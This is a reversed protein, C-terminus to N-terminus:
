KSGLFLNCDLNWSSSVNGQFSIGDLLQLVDQTQENVPGAFLSFRGGICGWFFQDPGRWCLSRVSTFCWDFDWHSRDNLPSPPLETSQACHLGYSNNRNDGEKSENRTIDRWVLITTLIFSSKKIFSIDFSLFFFCILDWLFVFTCFLKQNIDNHSCNTRVCDSANCDAAKWLWIGNNRWMWHALVTRMRQAFIQM